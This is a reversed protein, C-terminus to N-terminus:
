EDEEGPYLQIAPDTGFHLGETVFFSQLKEMKTSCRDGLSIKDSSLQYRNCHFCLLVYDKVHGLKDLFVIANRPFFCTNMSGIHVSNKKPQKKYFNSYLIDTLSDIGDKSLTQIEILSDTLLRDKVIPYNNRHYRFSVLKVTDSINFPYCQIRKAASYKAKYLCSLNDKEKRFKQHGNSLQGLAFLANFLILSIFLAYKM